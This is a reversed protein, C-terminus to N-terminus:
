WGSNLFEARALSSLDASFSGSFPFLLTKVDNNRWRTRGLGYKSVTTRKTVSVSLSDLIRSKMGYALRADDTKEYPLVGGRGGQSTEDPLTM